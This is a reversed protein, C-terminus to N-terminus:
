GRLRALEAEVKPRCVEMAGKINASASRRAQPDANLPASKPDRAGAINIALANKRVEGKLNTLGIIAM